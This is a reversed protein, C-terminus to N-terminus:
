FWSETWRWYKALFMLMGDSGLEPEEEVYRDANSGLKRRGYKRDFEAKLEAAEEEDLEEQGEGELLM